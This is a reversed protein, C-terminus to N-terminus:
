PRASWLVLLPRVRVIVMAVAAVEASPVDTEAGTASRSVATCPTLSAARPAERPVARPVVTVTVADDAGLCAVMSRATEDIQGFPLHHVAPRM